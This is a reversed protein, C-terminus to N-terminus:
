CDQRELPWFKRSNLKSTRKTRLPKRKKLSTFNKWTWPMKFPKWMKCKLNSSSQYIM